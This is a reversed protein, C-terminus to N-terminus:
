QKSKNKLGLVKESFEVFEGTNMDTTIKALIVPM